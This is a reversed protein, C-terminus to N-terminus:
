AIVIFQERRELKKPFCVGLTISRLADQLM